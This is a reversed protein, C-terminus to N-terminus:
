KKLADILEKQVKFGLERAKKVHKRALDYQELMYYNIALANHAAANRSDMKIVTLYQEAANEYSQM